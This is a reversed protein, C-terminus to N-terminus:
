ANILEVTNYPFSSHHVDILLSDEVLRYAFTYEVKAEKGDTDTFYYNGMAIARQEDIIIGTNEFRVNTWPALAFGKDENCARDDGAIFYSLAEERTARFQQQSCKTPKFLVKSLGFAYHSDLFDTAYSKCAEFNELLAGIAVVGQGWSEQAATVHSETIMFKPKYNITELFMLAVLNCIYCFGLKNCSSQSLPITLILPTVLCFFDGWISPLYHM